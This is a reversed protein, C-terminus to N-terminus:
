KKGPRNRRNQHAGHWDRWNSRRHWRSLGRWFEAREALSKAGVTELMGAIDRSSPGIHRRAFTTAPEERVTM